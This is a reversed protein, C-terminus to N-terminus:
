DIQRIILYLDMNWHLQNEQNFHTYNLTSNNKSVPSCIVQSFQLLISERLWYRNGVHETAVPRIVGNGNQYSPQAATSHQNRLSETSVRWKLVAQNIWSSSGTAVSSNRFVSTVVRRYSSYVLLSELKEENRLLSILSNILTSIHM